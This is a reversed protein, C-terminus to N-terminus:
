IFQKLFTNQMVAYGNTEVDTGKVYTNANPNTPQMQNKLTLFGHVGVFHM